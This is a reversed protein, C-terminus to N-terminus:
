EPDNPDEPLNQYIYMKVYSWLIGCIGIPWILFLIFFIFMDFSDAHTFNYKTFWKFKKNFFVFTIPALIIGGCYLAILFYTLM